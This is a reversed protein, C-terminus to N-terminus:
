DQDKEILKDFVKLLHEINYPKVIYWDAKKEMAKDFDSGMDRGTLMVIPINGTVPDSKVTECVQYGDIGPLGVDLVILDPKKEKIKALGSEGEYASSVSYGKEELILQLMDVAQRNDDIILIQKNM